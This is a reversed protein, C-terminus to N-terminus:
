SAKAAVLFWTQIAGKGKVDVVGREELLFDARLREFTAQAVQVRGEIGMSEMRSALNVTDGWVDYFFKRTGVVGAVVPGSAIGIRIAAHRGHPDFLSAAADRMNLALHALAQAHDPRPEPVGSVVMYADGSTKIKELGHREVLRDFETFTRNLFLVLEDPAMEGARATFGAMDAFLISAEDYKDAILADDRRKLRDAVAAPLINTLLSESRRYEREATEEARAAERFAYYVIMFLTGFSVVVTVIFSGFLMNAPELGTDHPVFVELAIVVAASIAAFTAGLVIRETGLFPVAFAAGVLYYLQLGAGTGVLAIILFFGGYLIFFLGLPAALAGFRHLLPVAACLPVALANIAAVKWIGPSSDFAQTAAFAASVGTAIWSTINLARLRRAVREPYGETGYRISL